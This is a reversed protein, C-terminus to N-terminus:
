WKQSLIEIRRMGTDLAVIIIEKLHTAATKLLALEEGVSVIPRKKRREREMRVGRLPNAVILQKRLGWNLVYRAAILDRNLTAATLTKQAHRYIRYENATEHSIRIIQFDRFYPLLAKLRDLHHKKASGSAIFQEAL